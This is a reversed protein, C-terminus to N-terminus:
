GFVESRIREIEDLADIAGNKKFTPLSSHVIRKVLGRLEVMEERTLEKAIAEKYPNFTWNTLDLPLPEDREISDLIEVFRDFVEAKMAPTIHIGFARIDPAKEYDERPISWSKHATNVYLIIYLDVDYMEGYSIVQKIHKADPERMSYFSTRAPTTQKTKVELGVRLVEGDSTVYHMIGDCTGYLYFTKGKHEVRHNKKAFDEFVPTGDENREFRFRSGEGTKTELNREMALITRQIIDGVATGIETWRGQHPEKPQSDKPYKKAKYFLERPCANAASPSFYPYKPWVTPPNSYWNHIQQDLENDWAEPLSYWLDLHAILDDAIQQALQHKNTM